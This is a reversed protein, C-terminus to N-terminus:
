VIKRYYSRKKDRKKYAEQIVTRKKFNLNPMKVGIIVRQLIGM